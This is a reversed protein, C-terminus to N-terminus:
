WNKVHTLGTSVLDEDKCAAMTADLHAIIGAIYEDAEEQTKFSPAHADHQWLQSLPTDCKQGNRSLPVTADKPLKEGVLRVFVMVPEKEGPPTVTQTWLQIINPKGNTEETM